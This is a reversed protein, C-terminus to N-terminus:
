GGKGQLTFYFTSGKGYTSEVWIEGNHREVIKKAITLGAGTGGGYKHVTHLRKFIRFIADFYKEKIGIGSDKVYFVTPLEKKSHNGDLFGIEVKKTAKDNYKIANTILNSFVESVQVKDCYIAPLPRPIHIEVHSEKLSISLVDIVNSVLENLDTQQVSLEVRGLRSFHLLSNILDEMRQTLRVLTQLKSVGEANLIEAYDEILFNSYNHIGRLPEKLDHSAIYAFADLENNSRALEINIRALEDAKRLVISVIASRLELVADIERPKWPLSQSRVTEQWLEFSKRPSLRGDQEVVVSQQPNGGWNVTQIMEPRFWLVYNKQMQSISLVILGSGVHKFKEATPYIKSLCDTYFIDNDIKAEVWELLDHLDSKNPTNGALSFDGNNCIAVGQADVLSLLDTKDKVLGDMFNETSPMTEIFKSQITKLKIKYDLKENEEKNTLELSMVQGLFECATRVEYSVYKPSYHHCAILGWLKKDKNLSISMSATVGMNKLYELHCPSVSRLVAYSLDLPKNTISNYPPILQKPQSNIDPILRLHNLTYLKKAQEPIDSAPYHLGLYSPLDERKEEAVVKGAQKGDFQYIMVRDFGTLKQVEQTINQCLESLTSANQMKAIAGKVFHYFRIFDREEQTLKPELELILINDCRHLIGDFNKVKASNNLSLKIPNVSEFDKLLCGEIFLLEQATLFDKLSKNLLEQPQFGLLEFTNDSVQIIELQPEKLAFLIGHPQVSGSLHLFEKDYATLDISQVISDDKSQSM